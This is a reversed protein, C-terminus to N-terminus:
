VREPSFYVRDGCVGGTLGDKSRLQEALAFGSLQLMYPFAQQGEPDFKLFISDLTVNKHVM